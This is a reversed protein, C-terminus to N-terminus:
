FCLDKSIFDMFPKYGFPKIFIKKFGVLTLDVQDLLESYGTIATLFVNKDRERIRLAVEVGNLEGLAIDLIILQYKDPEFLSLAEEGSVAADVVDFKETYEVFAVLMDLIIKNDEVILARRM